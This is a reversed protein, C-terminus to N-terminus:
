SELVVDVIDAVKVEGSLLWGTSIEKDFLEDVEKRLESAILSDIGIRALSAQMSIQEKPIFLLEALVEAVADAAANRRGDANEVPISRFKAIATSTPTAAQGNTMNASASQAQAAATQLIIAFKDLTQPPVETQQEHMLTSAKTPSLGCVISQACRRQLSDAVPASSNCFVAEIGPILDDFTPQDQFITLLSSIPGQKAWSDAIRQAHESRNAPVSFFNADASAVILVKEPAWRGSFVRQAVHHLEKTLIGDDLRGFIVANVSPSLTARLQMSVRNEHVTSLPEWVVSVAIGLQRLSELHLLISEDMLSDETTTSLSRAIIIGRIGMGVLWTTLDAFFPEDICDILVVSNSYSKANLSANEMDKSPTMPYFRKILGKDPNAAHGNMSDDSVSSVLVNM